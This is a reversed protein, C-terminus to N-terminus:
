AWRENGRSHLQGAIEDLQKQQLQRQQDLFRSFATEKMREIQRVASDAQQLVIQRRAVEEQLTNLQRRLDEIQLQLQLDYRGGDLLQNIKIVGVRGATFAQEAIREKETQTIRDEVVAVARVADSLQRQAQQQELIRLRLVTELTFQFRM